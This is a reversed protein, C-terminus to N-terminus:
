RLYTVYAFGVLGDPSGSARFGTVWEGAALRQYHKGNTGANRQNDFVGSAHTDLGDILNDSSTTSNAAKGFNCTSAQTSPVAVDITLYTVIIPGLEPNQWRVVNGDAAGTVLPLKLTQEASETKDFPSQM